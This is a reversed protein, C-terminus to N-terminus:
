SMKMLMTARLAELMLLLDLVRPLNERKSKEVDWQNVQPERGHWICTDINYLKRIGLRTGYGAKSTLISLFGHVDSIVGRM